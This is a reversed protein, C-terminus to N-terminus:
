TLSNHRANSDSSGVFSSIRSVFPEALNFRQITSDNFRLVSTVTYRNLSDRM